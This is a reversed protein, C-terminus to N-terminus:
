DLVPTKQFTYDKRNNYCDLLESCTETKKLLSLKGKRLDTDKFKTCSGDKQQNLDATVQNLVM